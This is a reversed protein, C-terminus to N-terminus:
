WQRGRKDQNNVMNRIEELDRVAHKATIEVIEIEDSDEITKGRISKIANLGAIMNDNINLYNSM